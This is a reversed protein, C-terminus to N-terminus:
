CGRNSWEGGADSRRTVQELKSHRLHYVRCDGVHGITTLGDWILVVAVTSGMGRFAPDAQSRRFVFNPAAFPATSRRASRKRRRTKSRAPPRDDAMAGLANGLFYM